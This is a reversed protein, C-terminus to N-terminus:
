ALSFRRRRLGKRPDIEHTAGPPLSQGPGVAEGRTLVNREFREAAATATRDSSATESDGSAARKRGAKRKTTTV